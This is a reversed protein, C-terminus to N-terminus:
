GRPDIDFSTLGGQEFLPQEDPFEPTVGTFLIFSGEKELSHGLV